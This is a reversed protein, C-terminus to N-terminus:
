GVDRTTASRGAGWAGSRPTLSGAASDPTESRLALIARWSAM